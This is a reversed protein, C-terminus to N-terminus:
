ENKQTRENAAGADREVDSDDSTAHATASSVLSCLSPMTAFSPRMIHRRRSIRPRQLLPKMNARQPRDRAAKAKRRTYAAHRPTPKGEKAGGDTGMEKRETELRDASRTKHYTDVTSRPPSLSCVVWTVSTAHM